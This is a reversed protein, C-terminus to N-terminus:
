MVHVYNPSVNYVNACAPELHVEGRRILVAQLIASLRFFLFTPSTSLTASVVADSHSPSGGSKTFLFIWSFVIAIFSMAASFTMRSRSCSARNWFARTFQLRVLFASHSCCPLGFGITAPFVAEDGPYRLGLCTFSGDASYSCTTKQGRHSRM